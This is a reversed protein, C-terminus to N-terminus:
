QALAETRKMRVPFLMREIVCLGDNFGDELAWEMLDEFGEIFIGNARTCNSLHTGRKKSRKGKQDRDLNISGGEFL